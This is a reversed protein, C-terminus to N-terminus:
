SDRLQAGHWIRLIAVRGATVRYVIVYPFVASLERRGDSRLRGREPFQELGNAVAVIRDALSRAAIPNFQGVYDHLATLDAAAAKTFQVTL